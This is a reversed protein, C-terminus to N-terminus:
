VPDCDRLKSLFESFSNAVRYVAVQPNKTWNPNDVYPPGLEHFFKIFVKGTNRGALAIFVPDYSDAVAIILSHRPLPIAHGFAARRISHIPAESSATPIDSDFYCFYDLYSMESRRPVDFCRPTPEGGNHKLIFKRYDLPLPNGIAKEFRNILKATISSSSREIKLHSPM